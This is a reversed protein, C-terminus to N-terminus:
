HMLSDPPTSAFALPLALGAQVLRGQELLLLCPALEHEGPDFVYTAAFVGLPGVVPLDRTGVVAMACEASPVALAAQDAARVAQWAQDAADAGAWCLAQAGQALPILRDPDRRHARSQQDALAWAAPADLQLCELSASTIFAYHAPLDLVLAERLPGLETRTVLRGPEQATLRVRLAAQLAMPDPSSRLSDGLQFHQVVETALQELPTGARYRDFFRSIHVRLTGDPTPCDVDGEPTPTATVGQAQIADCFAQLFKQSDATMTMMESETTSGPFVESRVLRLEPWVPLGAV